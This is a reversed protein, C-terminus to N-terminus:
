RTVALLETLTGPWTQEATWAATAVDPDGWLGTVAPGIAQALCQGVESDETVVDRLLPVPAHLVLAVLDGDTGLRAALRAVTRPEPEDEYEDDDDAEPEYREPPPAAALDARVHAAAHARQVASAGPHLAIRAAHEARAAHEDEDQPPLRDLADTAAALLEASPAPHAPLACAGFFAWVTGHRAVALATDDPLAPVTDDDFGLHIRARATRYAATRMVAPHTADYRISAIGVGWTLVPDALSPYTRLMRGVQRHQRLPATAELAEQTLAALPDQGAAAATAWRSLEAHLSADGSALDALEALADPHCCAAWVIHEVAEPMLVKGGALTTVTLRLADLQEDATADPHSLLGLAVTEREPGDTAGMREVLVEIVERCPTAAERAAALLSMTESRRLFRRVSEATAAPNAHLAGSLRPRGTVADDPTAPHTQLLAAARDRTGRAALAALVPTTTRPDIAAALALLTM